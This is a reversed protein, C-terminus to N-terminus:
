SESGGSASGCTRHHPLPDASSGSVGIGIHAWCPRSYSTFTRQPLQDYRGRAFRLASFSTFFWDPRSTPASLLSLSVALRRFSVPYSASGVLALPGSVAFSERGLPLPTSGAIARPFGRSKGPLDRRIGSLAVDFLRPSFDASATHAALLMPLSPESVKGSGLVLSRCLALRFSSRFSWSDRFHWAGSSQALLAGTPPM